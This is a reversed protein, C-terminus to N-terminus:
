NKYKKHQLVGDKGIRWSSSDSCHKFFYRQEDTLNNTDIYWGGHKAIFPEQTRIATYFTRENFNYGPRYLAFTTDIPALYLGKKTKKEWYKTEWQVIQDKNFNSEPIDSIDLSFGVKTIAPHEHLVKSFYKLFNDPCSADPVIDADTIVHLGKTYQKFLEKQEWFVMHGYNEKMRHITVKDKIEKFYQLLPEYSSDNDIIVINKYGANLLYQVLQKLYYLQNFSIILIPITKHDKLQERVTKNFFRHVYSSIFHKLSIVLTYFTKKITVKLEIYTLKSRM